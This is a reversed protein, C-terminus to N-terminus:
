QFHNSIPIYWVYPLVMYGYPNTSDELNLGGDTLISNKYLLLRLVQNEVANEECEMLNSYVM